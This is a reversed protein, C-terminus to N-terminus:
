GKRRGNPSRWIHIYDWAKGEQWEWEFGPIPADEKYGGKFLARLTETGKGGFSLHPLDTRGEIAYCKWCKEHEIILRDIAPCQIGESMVTSRKCYGCGSAYTRPNYHTAIMCSQGTSFDLRDQPEGEYHVWTECAPCMGWTRSRKWEIKFTIETVVGANDARDLRDLAKKRWFEITDKVPKVTGNKLIKAPRLRDKQQALFSEATGWNEKPWGEKEVKEIAAKTDAIEKDYYDNIMKRVKAYNRIHKVKAEAMGEM